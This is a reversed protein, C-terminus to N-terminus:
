ETMNDPDYYETTLDLKHTSSNYGHITSIERLRYDQLFFVKNALTLM